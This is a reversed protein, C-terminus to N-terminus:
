LLFSLEDPTRKLVLCSFYNLKGEGSLYSFIVQKLYALSLLIIVPFSRSVFMSVHICIHGSGPSHHWELMFLSVHRMGLSMATLAMFASLGGLSNSPSLVLLNVQPLKTQPVTEAVVEM